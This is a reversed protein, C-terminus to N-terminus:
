IYIYFIYRSIIYVSYLDSIRVVNKIYNELQPLINDGLCRLIEARKTGSLLAKAVFTATEVPHNRIEHTLTTIEGVVITGTSFGNIAGSELVLVKLQSM